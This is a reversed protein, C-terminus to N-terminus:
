SSTNQQIRLFPSFRVAEIATFDGTLARTWLLCASIGDGDPHEAFQRQGSSQCAKGIDTYVSTLPSHMVIGLAGGDEWAGITETSRQMQNSLHMAPVVLSGLCGENPGQGWFKTVHQLERTLFRRSYGHVIWADRLSCRLQQALARSWSHILKLPPSASDFAM